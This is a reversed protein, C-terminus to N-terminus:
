SRQDNQQKTIVLENTRLNYVAVQGDENELKIKNYSIRSVITEGHGIYFQTNWQSSGYTGTVNWDCDLVLTGDDDTHTELFNTRIFRRFVEPIEEASTDGRLNFIIPTVMTPLPFIRIDDTFQKTTKFNNMIKSGKTQKVVMPQTTRKM